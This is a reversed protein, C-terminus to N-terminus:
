YLFHFIFPLFNFIQNVTLSEIFDFGKQSQLFLMCFYPSIGTDKIKLSKGLPWYRFLQCFRFM